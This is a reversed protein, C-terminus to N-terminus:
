QTTTRRYRRGRRGGRPGHWPPGPTVTVTRHSAPQRPRPRPRGRPGAAGHDTVGYPGTEPEPGVTGPTRQRKRNKQRQEGMTGSNGAGSKSICFSLTRCVTGRRRTAPGPGSATGPSAAGLRVALSQPSHLKRRPTPTGRIYAM